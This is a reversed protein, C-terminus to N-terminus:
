SQPEDPSITKLAGFRPRYYATKYVLDATVFEDFMLAEHQYFIESVIVGEGANLTLNNPLTAIGSPTGIKSATDGTLTAGYTRQWDVTPPNDGVKSVATLIMFGRTEFNLSGSVHETSAFINQIGLETITQGQSTIDAASSALRSVKQHTLIYRALEIGGFILLILVPAAIALEILVVGRDDKQLLGKLRKIM